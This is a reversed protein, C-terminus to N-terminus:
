QRWRIWIDGLDSFAAHFKSIDQGLYIVASPFPASNQHGSFKLRGYIFCVAFDQFLRFWGTDVRAPVLAIAETIRGARYESVLKTAWASIEDGYPPNMYVKGNWQQKLGDDSISFHRTAPVNPAGSRNSCPDLDIGDLAQAVRNIIEPPTNWDPSESSFHVNGAEAMAKAYIAGLLAARYKEPEELWRRWRSVQQHTIGSMTEAQGIPITGHDACSKVGARGPSERISVHMGWWAIFARQDEMKQEIAAGLLSWDRVRKAYDIVADAEADRRNALEPQFTVLRNRERAAPIAILARSM